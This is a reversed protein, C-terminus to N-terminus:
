FHGVRFHKITMSVFLAVVVFVCLLVFTRQSVPFKKEDEEDEKKM